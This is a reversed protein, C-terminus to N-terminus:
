ATEKGKEGLREPRLEVDVGAGRLARVIDQFRDCSRHGIEDDTVILVYSRMCRYRSKVWCVRRIRRPDIRLRPSRESEGAFELVPVEHNDAMLM